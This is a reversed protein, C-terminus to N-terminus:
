VSVVEAEHERMVREYVLAGRTPSFDLRVLVAPVALAPMLNRYLDAMREALDERDTMIRSLVQVGTYCGAFLRAFADLDAHPLVEGNERAEAFLELSHNIWGQMPVKRDLNDKPSGQDVTLRISGQIIPDGDEGTLLHALLMGEDLAEQLKLDQPPVKPLAAVQEALVAQALEEKSGFHFYLAGKTLGSQDLIDSITTAEYGVQDFVKAAVVLIKRRTRIAREQRAM